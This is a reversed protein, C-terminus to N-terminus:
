LKKLFMISCGKKLIKRSTNRAFNRYHYILGEVMDILGMLELENEQFLSSNKNKAFLGEIIALCNKPKNNKKTSEKFEFKLFPHNM